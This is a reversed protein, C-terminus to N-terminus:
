EDVVADGGCEGACDEVATGDCEGACDVINSTCDPYADTCDAVLDAEDAPPTYYVFDEIQQASADAITIGSLGTAEGDLSLEVLTGCGAPILGATLSFGLVLDGGNSMTFGNTQADGGGAGLVTAGDM